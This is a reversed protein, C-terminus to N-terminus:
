PKVALPAFVGRQDAIKREDVRNEKAMTGLNGQVMTALPSKFATDAKRYMADIESTMNTEVPVNAM